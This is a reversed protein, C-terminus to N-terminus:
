SPRRGYLSAIQDIRGEIRGPCIALINRISQPIAGRDDDELPRLEFGPRNALSDGPQYRRGNISIHDVAYTISLDNSSVQGLGHPQLFSHAGVRRLRNTGGEMTRALYIPRGPRTLIPFLDDLRLWSVGIALASEGIMGYHPIHLTEDDINDKGCILEAHYRHRLKNILTLERAKIIFSEATLGEIYRLYRHCIGELICIKDYFWNGPTPYLGHYQNKYEAAGSHLVLYFGEAIGQDGSCHGYIIFHNGEEYNWIYAGANENVAKARALAAGFAETNKFARRLKFVSVGCANVTADVPVFPTDSEWEYAAGTYFGGMMRMINNPLGLDPMATITASREGGSLRTACQELLRETERLHTLIERQTQDKLTLDIM